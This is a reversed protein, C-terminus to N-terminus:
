SPSHVWLFQQIGEVRYLFRLLPPYAALAQSAPILEPRELLYEIGRTKLICKGAAMVNRCWDVEAADGYLLALVFGDGLPFASVPTRYENGSKRGTHKLLSYARFRGGAIKLFIANSRKNLQSRTSKQLNAQTNEMM